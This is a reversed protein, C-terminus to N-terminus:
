QIVEDATALLTEPITLGLARATKANTVLEIKTVQQVPLDAPKEGRLIRGTYVGALRWSGFTDPGYSMLGGATAFQRFSYATPVGYRSATTALQDAHSTFLADSSVFLGGAGKDVVHAFATELDSEGTAELLMLRLGLIRAAVQLEKTEAQAARNTPNVLAAILEAGPVLQHLLELRKAAVEHTLRAIGTVNGGPHNLSSVLGVQVPDIGVGFVIPIKTTAAKVALAALTSGPTVIVAVQRRVLDAAQAGLRDIQDQSWRFDIEVNRGDIYGTDALGSRLAAVLGGAREASGTDLFGVVPMAPQSRAALPWVATSGLGAIFTRRRMKM